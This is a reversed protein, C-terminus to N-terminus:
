LHLINLRDVDFAWVTLKNTKVGTRVWQRGRFKTIPNFIFKLSRPLNVRRFLMLGDHVLPYFRVFLWFNVCIEFFVFPFLEKWWLQRFLYAFLKLWLINIEGLPLVKVITSRWDPISKFFTIKILGILGMLFLIVMTYIM